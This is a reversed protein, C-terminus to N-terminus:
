LSRPCRDHRHGFQRCRHCRRQTFNCKEPSHDEGCRWCDIPSDFFSFENAYKVAEHITSPHNLHVHKRMEGSPLGDIFQDVSLNERASQPFTPFAIKALRKLAFGYENFSEERKKVRSRFEAKKHRKMGEPYYRQKLEELIYEFDHQQESSLNQLVERAEDKLSMALNAGKERYSWGNYDAVTDFHCMYDKLEINEKGGFTDPIREKRFMNNSHSQFNPGEDHYTGNPVHPAVNQELVTSHAHLSNNSMPRQYPEPMSKTHSSNSMPMQYLGPPSQTHSVNSTPQQYPEPPSQTHPPPPDAMSNM